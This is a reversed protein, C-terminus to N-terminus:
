VGVRISVNVVSNRSYSQWYRTASKLGGSIELFFFALIDESELWARVTFLCMGMQVSCYKCLFVCVRLSTAAKRGLTFGVRVERSVSFLNEGLSVWNSKM